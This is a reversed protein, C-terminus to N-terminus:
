SIIKKLKTNDGWFQMPEYDAYPYFGLNLDIHKNKLRLYNVVFDKVSIPEGGCCNIIGQIENQTAIQIFYNAILNVPLFDRIQEGGSMNFSAENNELAKDLQAILSKPNQGPGYMYFFRVWKFNFDYKTLLSEIALQLKNKAIAYPNDPVCEMSETLCGEKMGYEFCTGSVTLDKLGHQIMNELFAFHRPLNETIHFENKYNPLGEWALHLMLDPFGFYEFYNISADLQALDFDIYKVSGFWPRLLAKDENKSTAIVDFGNQLLAEVIYEGIFGTAGTVLVKKM